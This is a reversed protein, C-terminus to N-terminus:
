GLINSVWDMCVFAFDQLIVTISGVVIGLAVSGQGTWGLAAWGDRLATCCRCASGAWRGGM